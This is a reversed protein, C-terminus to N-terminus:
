WATDAPYSLDTPNEPRMAKQTDYDESRNSWRRWLEMVVLVVITVPGAIVVYIWWLSSTVGLKENISLVGAIWSLPFFVFAAITLRMVTHAELRAIQSNEALLQDLVISLQDRVFSRMTEFRFLIAEFDQTRMISDQEAEDMKPWNSTGRWKCDEVTQQVLETYRKSRRRWTYLRQLEKQLFELGLKNEHRKGLLQLECELVHCLSLWEGAVIRLAYKIAYLSDHFALAAEEPTMYNQYYYLLSNYMTSPDAQPTFDASYYSPKPMFNPLREQCWKFGQTKGLDVEKDVLM